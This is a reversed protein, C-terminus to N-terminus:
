VHTSRVPIATRTSRSQVARPQHRDHKSFQVPGSHRAARAPELPQASDHGGSLRAGPIEYEETGSRGTPHVMDADTDTVATEHVGRTRLPDDMGREILFVEALTQRVNSPQESRCMPSSRGAKRAFWAAVLGSPVDNQLAPRSYQPAEHRKKVKCKAVREEVRSAGDSIGESNSMRYENNWGHM